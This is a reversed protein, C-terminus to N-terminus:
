AWTASSRRAARAPNTRRGHARAHAHRARCQRPGQPSPGDLVQGGDGGRAYRRHRLADTGGARGARPRGGPLPLGGAAHLDPGAPLVRRGPTGDRARCACLRPGASRDPFQGAQLHARGAGADAHHREQKYVHDGLTVLDVGAERLQRYDKPTLGSGDTANEANAIVLDIGERAILAPLARKCSVGRGAQRRHRRPLSDANLLRGFSSHCPVHCLSWHRASSLPCTVPDLQCTALHCRAACHWTGCDM